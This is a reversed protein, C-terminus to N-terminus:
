SSSHPQSTNVARMKKSTIRITEWYDLLIVYKRSLDVLVRDVDGYVVVGEDIITKLLGPTAEDVDVLDIKDEDIGISSALEVVLRGLELASSPKEAFKVALDVDRGCGNRALSGFVIAYEVNFKRLVARLRDIIDSLCPDRGVHEDLLELVHPLKDMIEKFAKVELERDIRAYGHVLLNRFGALGELFVKYDNGLGLRSALYGMLERYSSPKSGRERSAMMAALDILSQAVLECLREVAYISERGSTFDKYIRTFENFFWKTRELQERLMM